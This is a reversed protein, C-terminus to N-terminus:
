RRESTTGLVIQSFVVRWPMGRSYCRIAHLTSRISSLSPSLKLILDSLGFRGSAFLTVDNCASNSARRSVKADGLYLPFARTDAHVHDAVDELTQLSAPLHFTQSTTAASQPSACSRSNPLTENM